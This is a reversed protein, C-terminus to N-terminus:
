TIALIGRDVIAAVITQRPYCASLSRTKNCFFTECRPRTPREAPRHEISNTLPKAAM